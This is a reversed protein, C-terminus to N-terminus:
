AIGKGVDFPNRFKAAISNGTTGIFLTHLFITMNSLNLITAFPLRCFYGCYKDRNSVWQKLNRMLFYNQTVM